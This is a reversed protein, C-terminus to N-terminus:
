ENKLKEQYHKITALTERGDFPAYVQVLQENKECLAEGIKEMKEYCQRHNKRLMVAQRILAQYAEDAM